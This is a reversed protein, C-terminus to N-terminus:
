ASGLVIERVELLPIEEGDALLSKQGFPVPEGAEEEWVTQRGLRVSDDAHRWSFPCLAPLLVQGLDQGKMGPGLRVMAPIWVLDRLKKPPSIQISAVHQFPVWMYAGGAFVELRAGIRADADEISEFPKGNLSGRGSPAAEGLEAAKSGLLEQRQREAQLAARYVLTGMETQPGGQALIDLQKGARDFEGAFCLLEFLFTRRKANAPDDRLEASVAQVAETLRGARYLEIASM